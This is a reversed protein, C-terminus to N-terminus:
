MSIANEFRKEELFEVIGRLSLSVDPDDKKLLEEAIEAPTVEVNKLLGEIERYLQHDGEINLYNSALVKFGDMTCYSMLVHVDMRGPRLLAPDLKEKHNTTFVIIREDGCSSWLGDIINLLGSLTFKIFPTDSNNEQERDELQAGCDIDEIVLISRNSTSLLTRRLDADSYRGGSLNLDYINFKLYNAMAAILSSKGTGPPGYLLYGRKWVKGVKKYLEKRRVFRDLDDKVMMKLAPDMALKEFTAPHELNISVWEGGPRDRGCDRSYLKITRMREKEEKQIQEYRAIVYPLYSELVDKEYIKDFALTFYIRPDDDEKEKESNLKWKLEINEFHDIVVEGVVIDISLKEQRNTKSVKIRKSKSSYNIKTRLYTTAAEYIQNNRLGAKEEIILTFQPTFFYHVVIFFLSRVAPPIFENGLIVFATSFFTALSTLM